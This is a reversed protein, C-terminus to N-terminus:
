RDRSVAFAILGELVDDHIGADRLATVADASARRARERAGDLGLLGPYTAKGREADRGASKGLVASQGTVDLIDDAVQFALGLGLGCRGFAEVSDAAAGALRAGIRLSASFLAGTKRRHIAELDAAQIASDEAALDLVQGGVMGAAGAGLALETVVAATADTPLGLDAAGSELIAAALPIMAAGALTTRREGYIRHATPRGRRYDDDDMCPLDDHLLSYTHIVELACAAEYLPEGPEGEGAARWAAVCLVPRLRKGGAELAYRIPEAIRRDIEPLRRDMVRALAAEVRERRASLFDVARAANGDRTKPGDRETGAPRVGDVEM